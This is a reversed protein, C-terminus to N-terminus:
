EELPTTPTMEAENDEIPESEGLVIINGKTGSDVGGCSECFYVYNGVPIAQFELIKTQGQKAIQKMGYSPFQIDYDKDIATFDIHVVDGENVIIKSPIFKGAEARIDFSRFKIESDASADVVAKPVAIVEAEEETLEADKEPVVIDEPMKEKYPDVKVAIVELEETQVLKEESFVGLKNDKKDNSGSFALVVILIVLIVIIIIIWNAKSIKKIM